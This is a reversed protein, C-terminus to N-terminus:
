LRNLYQCHLESVYLEALRSIYEGELPLTKVAIKYVEYLGNMGGDGRRGNMATRSFYWGDERIEHKVM